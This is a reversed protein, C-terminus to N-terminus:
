DSPAPQESQPEEVVKAHGIEVSPYLDPSRVLHVTNTGIFRGAFETMAALREDFRNGRERISIRTQWLLKQKKHLARERFDYAKLIVFYRNEELDDFIDRSATFWPMETARQIEEDWGLINANRRDLWDRTSNATEIALLEQAHVSNAYLQMASQALSGLAQTISTPGPKFGYVSANVRTIETMSAAVLGHDNDSAGTTTGWYVFILLDTKQPDFSPVYGQKRLVGGVTVAIRKFPLTEISPDRDSGNWRGGEAFVYSEPQYNGDALKTRHYGNSTRAYVTVVEPEPRAAFLEPAALLVLVM